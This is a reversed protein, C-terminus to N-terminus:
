PALAASKRLMATILKSTLIVTRAAVARGRYQEACPTLTARLLTSWYCLWVGIRREAALLPPEALSVFSRYVFHSVAALVACGRVNVRRPSPARFAPRKRGVVREDVKRGRVFFGESELPPHSRRDQGSGVLVWARDCRRLQLGMRFMVERTNCQVCHRRLQGRVVFHEPPM